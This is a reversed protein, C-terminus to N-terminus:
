ATARRKAGLDAAAKRSGRTEAMNESAINLVAALPQRQAESAGWSFVVSFTGLTELQYDWLKESIESLRQQAAAGCLGPFILVFEDDSSRSCFGKPGAIEAMLADVSNLLAEAAKHGHIEDLKMYENIGVSLVLGTLPATHDLLQNLVSPPHSGAPVELTNEFAELKQALTELSSTEPTELTPSSSDTAPAEFETVLDELFKEFDPEHSDAQQAESPKLPIRIVNEPLEDASQPIPEPESVAMAGSGTVAALNEEKEVEQDVPQTGAPKPEAV